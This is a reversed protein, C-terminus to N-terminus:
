RKLDRDLGPTPHAATAFAHRGIADRLGDPAPQRLYTSLDRAIRELESSRSFASLGVSRQVVEIVDLLQREVVMRAMNVRAVVVSADLGSEFAAFSAREVWLRATEIAAAGEAMRACQHPDGARGREVLTLRMLELLATGAGLQAALFRWAGGSFVPQRHYDEAVGFIQNSAIPNDFAVSRTMSSRMGHMTWEDATGVVYPNHPWVMILGLQDHKATVVPRTIHGAGSAYAKFGHLRFEAPPNGSLALEGKPSPANWVGLLGGGHVHACLADRQSPSGYTWLLQFANVHGEFLRAVSLHVGGIAQLAALLTERSATRWGLCRGGWIKPLVATLCGVERLLDMACSPFLESVDDERAAQALRTAVDGIADLLSGLGDKRSSVPISM